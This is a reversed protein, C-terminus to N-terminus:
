NKAPREVNESRVFVPQNLGETRIMSWQGESNALEFTVDVKTDKELVSVVASRSSTSSYAITSDNKIRASSPAPKTRPEEKAAPVTAPEPAPAIAAAPPTVEASPATSPVVPTPKARMKGPAPITVEKVISSATASGYDKGWILPYISRNFGEPNSFFFIVGILFAAGVLLSIVGPGRTQKRM